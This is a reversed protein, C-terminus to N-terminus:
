SLVWRVVMDKIRRYEAEDYQMNAICFKKGAIHSCFMCDVLDYGDQIFYCNTIKGSWNINFSNSTLQSDEVRLCFSSTQSRSVAVAYELDHAGDCFVVNKCNNIDCCRFVNESHYVTDSEAVNISEIQRNTSMFKVKSWAGIIDEISNLAIPPYMWDTAETKKRANEITIFSSPTTSTAWTEEGTTSDNVKQPLRTDFAFKQRVQELTYPNQYGFVSSIVKDVIEKAKVEDM